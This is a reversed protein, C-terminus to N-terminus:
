GTPFNVDVAVRRRRMLDLLLDRLRGLRERGTQRDGLLLRESENFGAERIQFSQAVGRDLVEDINKGHIFRLRTFNVLGNVLLRRGRLLITRALWGAM